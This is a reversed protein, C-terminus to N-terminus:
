LGQVQSEPALYEAHGPLPLGTEFTLTWIRKTEFLMMWISTECLRWAVRRSHYLVM